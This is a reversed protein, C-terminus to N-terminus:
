GGGTRRVTEVFGVEVLSAATESIYKLSLALEVYARAYKTPGDNCWANVTAARVGLRESLDRQSWGLELLLVRFASGDNERPFEVM